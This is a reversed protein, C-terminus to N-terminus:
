EHPAVNIHKEFLLRDTEARVIRYCECSSRLLGSRSKVSIHGRAYEIDGRRQLDQAAQTIGERRVGLFKAILEHTFELDTGKIRDLNVLLVRALQQTISHRRNCVATQATYLMLLQMYNLIQRRFSSSTNFENQVFSVDARYALGKAIVTCQSVTASNGMFIFTGTLGENGIEAFEASNGDEFDYQVSIICSAPLYIHKQSQGAQHIVQDVELVVPSLFKRWREWDGAHLGALIANSHQLIALNTPPMM